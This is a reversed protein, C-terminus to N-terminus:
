ALSWRTSSRRGSFSIGVTLFRRIKQLKMLRGDVLHDLATFERSELIGTVPEGTTSDFLTLMHVCFGSDYAYSDAGKPKTTRRARYRDDDPSAKFDSLTDGKPTRAPRSRM